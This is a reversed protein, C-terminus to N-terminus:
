YGLRLLNVMTSIKGYNFLSGLPVALVGFFAFLLHVFISFILITPCYKFEILHKGASVHIGILNGDARYKDVELNDLFAKWHNDFAQDFVLYGADPFAVKVTFENGVDNLLEYDLSNENHIGGAIFEAFGDSLYSNEFAKKIEDSKIHYIFKGKFSAFPLLNPEYYLRSKGLRFSDAIVSAPLERYILNSYSTLNAFSNIKKARLGAAMPDDHNSSVENYDLFLPRNLIAPQRNLIELYRIRQDPADTEAPAYTAVIRSTSFAMGWYPGVREFVPAKENWSFNSQGYVLYHGLDFLILILLLSFYSTGLPFNIRFNINFNKISFILLKIYEVLIFKIKELYKENLYILNYSFFISCNIILYLLYELSFKNFYIAQMSVHNYSFFCLFLFSVNIYLLNFKKKMFNAIDDIRKEVNFYNNINLFNNIKTLVLYIVFYTLPSFIFYGMFIIDKLLNFYYSIIILLFIDFIFIFINFASINFNNGVSLDQSNKNFINYFLIYSIIVINFLYILQFNELEFKVKFLVCCLLGCSVTIITNTKNFFKNFVYVSFVLLLIILTSWPFDMVNKPKWNVMYIFISCFYLSGFLIAVESINNRIGVVLDSHKLEIIFNAGILFFYLVGILFFSNLSHTHRMLWLPPIFQYLLWHLGGYPGLLLLGFFITFSAWIAKLDHRGFFIGVLAILMTGFGMYKLAEGAGDLYPVPPIILGLFDVPKSFTGTLYLIPYPILLAAGNEIDPKEDTQLPGGMPEMTQWGIPVNRSSLFYDQRDMFFSLSPGAMSILTMLLILIKLHNKRQIIEKFDGIRWAVFSLSLIFLALFSGVFFYSELSMGFFIGMLLWNILDNNKKYIIQFFYYLVWPATYFQDLIGNQHLGPMLLSSWLILYPLISKLLSSPTFQRLLLHSGIAAWIIRILRDWAMLATPSDTINPGIYEILLSFPDILRLQLLAPLLPEGGHSYPNWLPFVGNSIGATMYDHFPLFWYLNDHSITKTSWFLVHRMSFLILSIACIFNSVESKLANLFVYKM